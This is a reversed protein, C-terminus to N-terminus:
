SVPILSADGSYPLYAILSEVFMGYLGAPNHVSGTGDYPPNSSFCCHILYARLDDNPGNLPVKNKTFDWALWMMHDYARDQTYWSVLKNSNDLVVDHSNFAEAAAAYPRSFSILLTFSAASAGLAVVLRRWRLSPRARM